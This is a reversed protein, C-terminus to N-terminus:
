GEEEEIIANVMDEIETVLDRCITRRFTEWIDGSAFCLGCYAGKLDELVRKGEPTGFIAKYDKIRSAQEKNVQLVKEAV